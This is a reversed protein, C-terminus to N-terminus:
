SIIMSALHGPIRDMISMEQNLNRHSQCELKQRYYKAAINTLRKPSERVIIKIDPYGYRQSVVSFNRITTNAACAQFWPEIKKHLETSRNDYHYYYSWSYSAIIIVDLNELSAHYQIIGTIAQTVDYSLTVHLERLGRYAEIALALDTIESTTRFISITNIKLSQIHANYRLFNLVHQQNFNGQVFDLLHIGNLHFEM